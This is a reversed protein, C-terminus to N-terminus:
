PSQDTLTDTAFGKKAIDSTGVCGDCKLNSATAAFLSQSFMLLVLPLLLVNILNSVKM